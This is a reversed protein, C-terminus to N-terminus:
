LVLLELVVARQGHQKVRVFLHPRGPRFFDNGVQRALMVVDEGVLRGVLVRHGHGGIADVLEAQLDLALGGMRAGGRFITAIGQSFQRMLDHLELVQSVRGFAGRHVPGHGRSALLGVDDGIQRGGLGVHTVRVHGLAVPYQSVGFANGLVFQDRLGFGHDGEVLASRRQGFIVTGFGQGLRGLFQIAIDVQLNLGDGHTEPCIRSIGIHRATGLRCDQFGHPHHPCPQM